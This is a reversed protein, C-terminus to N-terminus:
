VNKRNEDDALLHKKVAHCHINKRITTLLTKKTEMSM